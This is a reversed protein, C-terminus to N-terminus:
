MTFVLWELMFILIVMAISIQFIPQTASHTQNAFQEAKEEMFQHLKDLAKELKKVQLDGKNKIMIYKDENLLGNKSLAITENRIAKWEEFLRTVKDFYRKDGRFKQEIQNFNLYINQEYATIMTLNKTLEMENSFYVIEKMQNVIKVVDVNIEHVANSKVVLNHNQLHTSLKFLNYIQFTTFVGIIGILMMIILFIFHLKVSIKM